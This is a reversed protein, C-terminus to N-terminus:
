FKWYSMLRVKTAAFIVRRLVHSGFYVIAEKTYVADQPGAQLLEFPSKGRLIFDAQFTGNIRIRDSPWAPNMKWNEVRFQPLNYLDILLCPCKFFLRHVVNLTSGPCSSPM